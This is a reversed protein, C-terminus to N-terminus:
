TVKTHGYYLTWGTVGVLDDHIYIQINDAPDRRVVLHETSVLITWGGPATVRQNVEADHRRNDESYRYARGHKDYNFVRWPSTM